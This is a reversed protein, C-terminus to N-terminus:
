ANLRFTAYGNTNYVLYLGYEMFQEDAPIAPVGGCRRNLRRGLGLDWTQRHAFAELKEVNLCNNEWHLEKIQFGADLLEKKKITTGDEHTLVPNSAGKAGRKHLFMTPEVDARDRRAFAIYFAGQLLLSKMPEESCIKEWLGKIEEDTKPNSAKVKGNIFQEQHKTKFAM